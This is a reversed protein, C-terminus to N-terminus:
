CQSVMRLNHHRFDTSDGNRHTVRINSYPNVLYRALSVQNRDRDPLYTYVMVRKSGTAKTRWTYKQLYPIVDADVMVEHGDITLYGVNGEVRHANAVVEQINERRCDLPNQNVLPIPTLRHRQTLVNLLPIKVEYIGELVTTVPEGGAIRWRHEELISLDATSGTVFQAGLRANCEIFIISGSKHLRNKPTM